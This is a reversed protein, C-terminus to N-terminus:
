WTRIPCIWFYTCDMYSRGWAPLEDFVEQSKELLDCKAYMDVLAAGVHINTKLSEDQAIQAHIEKGKDLAGISGCAKLICVLTLANPSLGESQMQEVCKLASEGHGHRAYGGILSTWAAVDRIPLGDFVEQAELLLGCKAYMDLLATGVYIDEELLGDTVIAAHIEHGKNLAGLNDCAKLVCVMTVANPSFGESKMEQFSTLAREGDGHKAYGSILVNWSVVDRVPLENFIAQAKALAGCKVYMSLLNNSVLIDNGFLGRAVIGDHLESGRKLDKKKACDKLFAVLTSNDYWSEERNDNNVMVVERDQQANSLTETAITKIKAKKEAGFM